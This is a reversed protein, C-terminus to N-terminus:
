TEDLKELAEVDDKDSSLFLHCHNAAVLNVFNLVDLHDWQKPRDRFVVQFLFVPLITM